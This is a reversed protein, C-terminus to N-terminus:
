ASTRAAGSILAQKQQRTLRKIRMEERLAQSRSAFPVQYVLVVPRRSATYRAGRGTEGNHEALRRQADRAIGTYLSGDACALIYLVYSM